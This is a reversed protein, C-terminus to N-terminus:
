EKITKIAFDSFRIWHEAEAPGHYGQVSIKDGEAIALDGEAATKFEDEGQQRFQAIFRGGGVILRLRVALKEAPVKGPVVVLKGDVREHVLKFAPKDEHYLTIGAQEYQETPESLSTVTVEIAVKGDAKPIQRLLANKVSNADGPRLRIELGDPTARWDAPDERLWSWGDALKGKFTDQFLAKEDAAVAGACALLVALFLRM